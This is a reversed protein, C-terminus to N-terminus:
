ENRLSKVPNALAAKVAQFSITLLAVLAALLGAVAFIWWPIGTRYAFDNLWNHMAYWAIPFAIVAAIAVLKLFDKSLLQVISSTNAGLVKRIGIEKIRQTIAFASLGFLGLCAILIAIGAFITFLTSQKQESTYLRNFNEDLFTSQYPAEPLFKKWVSEIHSLAAPMNNGAIKISLRNYNNGDVPLVMVMPVIKQHLSEFHFDHFVGILKGKRGGYQFNKGLAAESNKLGLADVAAENILYASTDTGFDRSFARGSVMKIDFTKIFDQDTALFKIDANVPTLSDAREIAAGMNDLLRGTPIRSSRTIDKISANSLLDNRFAEYRDTLGGNYAMTVIHDRDYGLDKNHMYRMQMYVIGTSIILIISIAFQVTVLVKRFSINAGGAKFLGKLVSVPKFSSMFIAPYIGSIVGVVFPVLVIASIFQWNM